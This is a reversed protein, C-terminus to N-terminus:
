DPSREGLTVQFSLEQTGRMVVVEASSGPPTLAVLRQLALATGIEQGNWRLIVDGPRLGADAAPSPLGVASSLQRVLVGRDVKLDYEAIVAEDLDVLTVGLWGRDVHGNEKLRQYIRRAASSPIAFSIGQYSEGIIATNVGIVRGRADVLPGGSNGPNVAADTQLFDLYPSNSLGERNKASLIGSTISQQLGFPSGVAWVLAGVELEDSDGWEAAILNAAQIQLLALDTPADYGLLDASVSRGDSLVVRIRQAGRIVHYNTLVYGAPDVIVGSGEGRQVRDGFLRSFEDLPAATSSLVNIHVVSPGVRKSVMQYAQSLNELPSSELAATAIEVEARERGRTASYQLREVFSPTLIGLLMVTAVFSLFWYLRHIAAAHDPPPLKPRAHRVLPSLPLGDEETDHLWESM